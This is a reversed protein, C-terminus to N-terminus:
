ALTALRPRWQKGVMLSSLTVQPRPDTHGIKRIVTLLLVSEFLPHTRPILQEVEDSLLEMQTEFRRQTAEDHRKRAQSVRHSEGDAAISRLAAVIDPDLTNM